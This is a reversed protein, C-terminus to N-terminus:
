PASHFPFSALDTAPGYAKTFPSSVLVLTTGDPLDPAVITFVGQPQDIVERHIGQDDAGHVEVHHAIPNHVIRRYLPRGRTDRVEFWFGTQGQYGELPDSPPVMMDVPQRALLRVTTAEYDLLFRIAKTPPTQSM